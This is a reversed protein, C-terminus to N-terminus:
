HKNLDGIIENIQKQTTEYEKNKNNQFKKLAEQVNHNVIDLLMDIFNKNSVQLIEEKMTNKHAKNPEKTSNIKTTPTQIQSDMKKM